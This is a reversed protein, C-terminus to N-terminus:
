RKVVRYRYFASPGAVTDRVEGGVISVGSAFVPDAGNVWGAVAAWGPAAALTLSRDLFVDVDAPISPPVPVRGRVTANLRTSGFVYVVGNPLGDGNADGNFTPDQGAPINAAAWLTYGTISGAQLTLVVDNGTGGNYVVRGVLTTSGPWPVLGGQAVDAFTGTVPDAGDNDVLTFANGAAAAAFTSSLALKAGNLNVGGAVKLQSYQTDPTLGTVGFSLTSGPGGIALTGGALTFDIGPAAPIISGAAPDTVLTLATAAARSVPASVTLARTATDGITINATAIQDLEADTLGLTDVLDASGLNIATTGSKQHLNVSSAVGASVPGTLAMSDAILTIPGSGTSRIAGAELDIGNLAAPTSTLGADVTIGGDVTELSAATNLKVTRSVKVRIAGTGSTLINADPSLEFSDNGPAASDNELDMDLSANSAFTIDGTLYLSDNGTGGNLTISQSRTAPSV